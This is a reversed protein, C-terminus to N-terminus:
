KKTHLLICEIYMYLFNKNLFATVSNEGCMKALYELNGNTQKKCCYNNIGKSKRM